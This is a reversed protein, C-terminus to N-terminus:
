GSTNRSNVIGSSLFRRSWRDSFWFAFRPSTLKRFKLQVSPRRDSKSVGILALKYSYSSSPRIFNFRFFSNLKLLKPAQWNLGVCSNLVPPPLKWNLLLVTNSILSALYLMTKNSLRNEPRFHRNEPRFKHKCYIASISIKFKGVPRFVFQFKLNRKKLRFHRLSVLNQRSRPM